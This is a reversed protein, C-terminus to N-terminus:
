VFVGQNHYGIGSTNSFRVSAQWISPMEIDLCPKCNFTNKTM